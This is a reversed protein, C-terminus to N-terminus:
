QCVVRGVAAFFHVHVRAHAGVCRHLVKKPMSAIVFKDQTKRSCRAPQWKSGGRRGGFQQRTWIQWRVSNAWSIQGLGRQSMISIGKCHQLCWKIVRTVTPIPRMWNRIPKCERKATSRMRWMIRNEGYNERAEVLAYAVHPFTTIIIIAKIRMMVVKGCTAYQPSQKHHNSSLQWCCPIDTNKATPVCLLTPWYMHNKMGILGCFLLPV